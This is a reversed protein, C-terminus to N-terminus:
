IPDHSRLGLATGVDSDRLNAMKRHWDDVREQPTRRRPPHGVIPIVEINELDSPKRSKRYWDIAEQRCAEEKEDMKEGMPKEGLLFRARDGLQDAVEPDIGSRILEEMTAFGQGKSVAEAVQLLDDLEDDHGEPRAESPDKRVVYFRGELEYFRYECAVLQEGKQDKSAMTLVVITTIQASVWLIFGVTM